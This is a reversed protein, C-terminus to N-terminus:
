TGTVPNCQSCMAAGISVFLNGSIYVGDNVTIDPVITCKVLLM